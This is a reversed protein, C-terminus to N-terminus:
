AFLATCAFLAVGLFVLRPAIGFRLSEDAPRDLFDPAYGLTERLLPDVWGMDDRPREPPAGM